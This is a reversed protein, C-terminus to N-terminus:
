WRTVIRSGNRAADFARAWVVAAASVGVAVTWLWWRYVSAPRPDVLASLGVVAAATLGAVGAARIWQWFAVGALQPKWREAAGIAVSGMRAESVGGIRRSLRSAIVSGSLLGRLAALDDAAAHRPLEEPKVRMSAVLRAVAQVLVSGRTAECLTRVTSTM